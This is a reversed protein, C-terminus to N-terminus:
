VEESLDYKEKIIKSREERGSEILEDLSIGQQKLAAGIRDLARLALVEQPSILIGDDTEIFAVLDGEKLGLKDRMEAPITVQGKKQVRSYKQSIAM